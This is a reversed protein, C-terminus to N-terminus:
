TLLGFARCEYNFDSIVDSLIPSQIFSFRIWEGAKKWFYEIKTEQKCTRYGIQSVSAKFEDTVFDLKATLHITQVFVKPDTIIKNRRAM